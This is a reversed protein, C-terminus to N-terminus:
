VVLTLHNSAIYPSVPTSKGTLMSAIEFVRRKNEAERKKENM